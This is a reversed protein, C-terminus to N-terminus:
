LSEMQDFNINISQSTTTTVIGTGTRTFPKWEFKLPLEVCPCRQTRPSVGSGCVPCVWGYETYMEIQCELEM